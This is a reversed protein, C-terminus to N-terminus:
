KQGFGHWGRMETEKRITQVPGPMAIFNVGVHPHWKNAVSFIESWDHMNTMQM